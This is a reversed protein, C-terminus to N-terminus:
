IHLLFAYGLWRFVFISEDNIQFSSIRKVSRCANSVPVQCNFITVMLRFNSTLPYQFSQVGVYFLFGLIAPLLYLQVTITLLIISQDNIFSILWESM